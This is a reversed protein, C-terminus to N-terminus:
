IHDEIAQLGQELDAYVQRTGTRRFHVEVKGEKEWQKGLIMISGYGVLEADRIRRGFSMDYRDDVIVEDQGVSGSIRKLIDSSELVTKSLPLIITKWPTVVSPWAIGKADACLEAIAGLLRTVGIGYCGMELFKAKPNPESPTIAPLFTANM